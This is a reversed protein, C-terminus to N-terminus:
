KVTNNKHIQTKQSIHKKNRNNTPNQFTQEQELRKAHDFFTSKPMNCRAAAQAVTLEKQKWQDVVAQFYEPNERPPVGFRVGRAKAAAIGEAQRQRISARENEAVYSLLALVIDSLFTGMLDKGKRTDLLPMDLVVIDAEKEKTIVKWQEIIEEYNRGLRDISKIFLLDDKKLKKMLKRYMPREFDKGSQMDIYIQNTPINMEQLAIIQRETNQDKSSVRAYGYMAMTIRRLFFLPCFQRRSMSNYWNTLELRKRFM